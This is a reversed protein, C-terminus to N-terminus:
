APVPDLSRWIYWTAVSRYPDWAAAVERVDSRSVAEGSFYGKHVQLHNDTDFDNQLYKKYDSDEALQEIIVSYQKKYEEEFIYHIKRISQGNRSISTRSGCFM